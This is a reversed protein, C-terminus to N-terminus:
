HNIYRLEGVWAKQLEKDNETATDDLNILALSGNSEQNSHRQSDISIYIDVLQNDNKSYEVHSM